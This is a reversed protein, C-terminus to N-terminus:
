ADHSAKRREAAPKLGEETPAYEAWGVHAILGQEIGNRLAARITSPPVERRLRRSIPEILDNPRHTVKRGRAVSKMVGLMAEIAEQNVIIKDISLGGPGRKANEAVDEPVRKWWREPTPGHSEKAKGSLASSAAVSIGLKEAIEKHPMKLDKHLQAVTKRRLSSFQRAVTMHADYVAKAVLAREVPDRIADIDRTTM